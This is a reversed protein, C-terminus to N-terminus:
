NEDESDFVEEREVQYDKLYLVPNVYLGDKIVGFHLHAGTAYGTRGVEGIVDTLKVSSGRRLGKKFKRLHDYATQIGNLHEILVYKGKARTRGMAIVRGSFAPHIPTGSSARFDVGNHPQLRRKKVPHRRALNFESTITKSGVPSTLIRESEDPIINKLVLSQTKTDTVLEKEIIARDVIVKTKVVHGLKIAQDGETFIEVTIEYHAEVRLGKTTSFEEKYAEAVEAAIKSNHLDDFLANYLTDVIEGSFYKKEINYDAEIVEIDVLTDSKTIIVIDNSNEAYLKLTLQNGYSELSKEFAVNLNVLDPYKSLLEETQVNTFNYREFIQNIDENALVFCPVILTLILIIFKKM